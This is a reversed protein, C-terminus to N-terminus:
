PASEKAVQKLQRSPSSAFCLLGGFIALNKFFEIAQTERMTPDPIAWFAHFIWTVPILYLALLAAILRPRRGFILYAGGGLEVVIAAILCYETMFMNHAQMYTITQDWSFIKNIGAMIFLAAICLRGIFGIFTAFWQM